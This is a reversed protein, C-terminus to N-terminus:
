VPAVSSRRARSPLIARLSPGLTNFFALRCRWIALDAKDLAPGFIPWYSRSAGDFVVGAVLWRSLVLCDAFTAAAGSPFPRRGWGREQLLRKLNQGAALLLAETNVRWLQHLRFRGM